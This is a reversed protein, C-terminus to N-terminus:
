HALGYMRWNLSYAASIGGICRAGARHLARYGERMTAGTTLVDDVILAQNVQLSDHFKSLLDERVRFAGDMNRARDTANLSKQPAVKRGLSLLPIVEDKTDRALERSIDLLFDRGRARRARESSPIPILLLGEPFLSRSQRLSDVLVSELQHNHDDKAGLVLRSVEDSFPLKTAISMQGALTSVMIPNNRPAHLLEDSCVRCLVIDPVTCVICQVPIVLSRLASWFSM